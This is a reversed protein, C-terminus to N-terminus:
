VEICVVGKEQPPTHWPDGREVDSSCTSRTKPLKHVTQGYQNQDSRLQVEIQSM